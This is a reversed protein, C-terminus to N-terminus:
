WQNTLSLYFLRDYYRENLTPNYFLAESGMLTLETQWVPLLWSLGLSVRRTEEALLNTVSFINADVPMLQPGMMLKGFWSHPLFWRQQKPFYQWAVQLAHYRSKFEAYDDEFDPQMQAYGLEFWHQGAQYSFAARWQQVIGLYEYDSEAFAIRAHWAQQWPQFSLQLERVSVNDTLQTPDDNNIRHVWIQPTLKGQIWDSHLALSARIAYDQQKLPDEIPALYDIHNQQGFVDVTFRNLYDLQIRLSESHHADRYQSGHYSGQLSAIETSISLPSLPDAQATLTICCLLSSCYRILRNM